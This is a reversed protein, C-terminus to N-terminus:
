EATRDDPHPSEYFVENFYNTVFIRPEIFTPPTQSLCAQLMPLTNILSQAAVDDYRCDDPLRTMRFIDIRESFTEDHWTPDDTLTFSAGHDGQLLILADPDAAILEEMAEGLMTATCLAQGVYEARFKPDSGSSLTSESEIPGCDSDFRYPQHPLMLHSYVFIPGTAESRVENVLSVVKKPDQAGNLKPTVIERIPTNSWIAEFTEYNIEEDGICRDAVSTDCNGEGWIGSGSHWYEYGAEAFFTVTKNHGRLADAGSVRVSFDPAEDTEVLPYEANLLSPVSLRTEAYNSRANPELAFGLDELRALHPGFDVNEQGMEQEIVRPHSFADLVFMYVNPKRTLEGVFALSEGPDAELDSNAGLPGSLTLGTVAIIAAATAVALIRASHDSLWVFIWSAFLGLVLWGLVLLVTNTATAWSMSFFGYGLVGCTIGAVHPAVRTALLATTTAATLSAVLGITLIPRLQAIEGYNTAVLIALPLSTLAGALLPSTLRTGEVPEHGFTNRLGSVIKKIPSATPAEFM